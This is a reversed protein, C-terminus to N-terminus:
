GVVPAVYFVSVATFILFRRYDMSDSKRAGSKNSVYAEKNDSNYRIAVDPMHQITADGMGSIVGAM